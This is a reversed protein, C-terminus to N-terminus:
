GRLTASGSLSLIVQVAIPARTTVCGGNRKRHSIERDTVSFHGSGRIGAYKGTGHSLKYTGRESTTRLCTGPTTKSKPGGPSRPTLRINGRSLKLEASPGRSFLNMTGGDTFLGTAIVSTVGSRTSTLIITFHEAGRHSVPVSTQASAAAIGTATTAVVALIIAILKAHARRM